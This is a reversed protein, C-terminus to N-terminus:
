RKSPRLGDAAAADADRYCVDAQTRDYLAGGPSHFVDSGAIAKIPHSAPCTGNSAEVRPPVSAPADPTTSTDLDPDGPTPTRDDSTMRRWLLIGIAVLTGLIFVPRALRVGRHFANQAPKGVLRLFSWRLLRIVM